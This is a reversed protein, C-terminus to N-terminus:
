LRAAKSSIKERALIQLCPPGDKVPTVDDTEITLNSIQEPTQAYKKHMDFFEHLTASQGDDKIGYRLGDEADFYPMNLFNGVDGRDLFLRVQKPFIESTGYGLSAAIHKLTEQMQTATIWETTFLFM